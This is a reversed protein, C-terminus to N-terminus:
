FVPEPEPLVSGASQGSPHCHPKTVNLSGLTVKNALHEIQVERDSVTLLHGDMYVSRYIEREGQMGYWGKRLPHRGHSVTHDLAIRGEKIYYVYAGEFDVDEGYAWFLADGASLSAEQAASLRRVHMPVVLLGSAAHFLFAKPEKAAISYSGRQGVIVFHLETPREPVSVDFLSLKM